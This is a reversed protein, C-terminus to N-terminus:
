LLSEPDITGDPSLMGKLTFRYGYPNEVRCTVEAGVVSCSNRIVNFDKGYYRSYLAQQMEEETANLPRQPTSGGSSSAIAAILAILAGLVLVGAVLHKQALQFTEPPAVVANTDTAQPDPAPEGPRRLGGLVPQDQVARAFQDTRSGHLEWKQPEDSVIGPDTALRSSSDGLLTLM